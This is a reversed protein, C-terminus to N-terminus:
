SKFNNLMVAYWWMAGFFGLACADVVWLVPTKRQVNVLDALGSGSGAQLSSAFYILTVAILSGIIIHLATRAKMKKPATREFLLARRDSIDPTETKLPDSMGLIPHPTSAVCLHGHHSVAKYKGM